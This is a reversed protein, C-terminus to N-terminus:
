QYGPFPFIKQQEVPLQSTMDMFGRSKRTVIKGDVTHTGKISRKISFGPAFNEPSPLRGRCPLNVNNGIFCKIEDISVAKLAINCLIFYRDIRCM